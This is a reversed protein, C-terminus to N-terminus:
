SGVEIIVEGPHLFIPGEENDYSVIEAHMSKVGINKRRWFSIWSCSHRGDM